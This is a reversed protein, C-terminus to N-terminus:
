ILPEPTWSRPLPEPGDYRTCGCRHVGQIGNLRLVESGHRRAEGEHTGYGHGCSCIERTGPRPGRGRRRQSARGILYGAWGPVLALLAGVLLTTTTADM